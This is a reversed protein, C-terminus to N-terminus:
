LLYGPKPTLLDRVQETLSPLPQGLLRPLDQSQSQIDAIEQHSMGMQVPQHDIQPGFAGARLLQQWNTLFQTTTANVKKDKLWRQYEAPTVQQLALKTGTVTQVAAVLDTYTHFAGTLEYVPQLEETAKSLLVAAAQAYYREAAWGIVQDGATTVLPQHQQLATKLAPQENELYCNNRLFSHPVATAAILQETKRHDDILPNHWQDAHFFSTYGLWQVHNDVAATVVNQHQTLRSVTEDPHASLMLVRDVEHLATQLSAPNTYDGQRIDLAAPFLAQAKTLDHTIIVIDQFPVLTLLHNVVLQGLHSTAATVAYKM